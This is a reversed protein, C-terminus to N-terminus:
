ILMRIACSLSVVVIPLIMMGRFGNKPQNRKMHGLGNQYKNQKELVREKRRQALLRWMFEVDEDKNDTVNVALQLEKNENRSNHYPWNTELGSKKNKKPTFDRIEVHHNIEEQCKKSTIAENDQYPNMWTSELTEKNYWYRCEQIDCFCEEWSESKSLSLLDQSNELLSDQATLKRTSEDEVIEMSMEEMSSDCGIEEQSIQSIEDDYDIHSIECLNPVEDSLFVATDESTATNSSSRILRKVDKDQIQHTRSISSLSLMRGNTFKRLFLKSRRVFRSKRKNMSRTSISSLTIKTLEKSIHM